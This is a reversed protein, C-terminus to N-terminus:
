YLNKLINHTFNTNKSSYMGKTHGDGELIYKYTMLGEIGVPGRAHIKNTSIGIEAGMGFNFGDNFRTSCNCFVAASDVARIFIEKSKDDNTIISDTHHSGYYNIHTIAEEIGEVIKISLILDTYETYWDKNQAKKFPLELTEAYPIAKDCLRLEVNNKSLEPLILPLFKNAIDKHILLTEMANCVSPYEIKADLVVALSNQIDINKDVYIHCIGDTHGLVPIRTNEQIYCVLQKSGRPIILDINKEECLLQKIEMRSTLLEIAGSLNFQSLSNEVMQHLIQNSFMAEHGGKLIAANGSKIILASIQIIVEPRSEFIIAIVGIPFSYRKLVLNRDLEIAYQIQRIPDKLNRVQRVYAKLQGIKKKDICLRQYMAPSLKGQKVLQKANDQDKRNAQLIKESSNELNHILADLIEIRTSSTLCSAKLFQERAKSCTSHVKNSIVNM